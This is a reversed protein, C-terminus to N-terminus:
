KSPLSEAYGIGQQIWGDLASDTAFEDPSVLVWGRM